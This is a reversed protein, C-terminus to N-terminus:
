EEGGDDIMEAPSELGMALRFGLWPSRSLLQDEAYSSVASRCIGADNQFSGGRIIRFVQEVGQSNAGHPNTLFGHKRRGWADHCWEWSNGHMDFLGSINPRLRKSMHTRRQSNERFWAYRDLWRLDSGFSYATRSKTRCAIEWEASTPYRVGRAKVGQFDKVNSQADLLYAEDRSLIGLAATLWNAFRAGDHWNVFTVPDDPTPDHPMQEEFHKWHSPMMLAFDNWTVERDMIAFDYSLRAKHRTEFNNRGKEDIPSGLDYTGARFVVFTMSVHTKFGTPLTASMERSPSVVVTFWECDQSYPRRKMDVEHVVSEQQWRRLLWGSSGHIAASPDRAYLDSVKSIWSFRSALPLEELDFEGLALLLGYIARDEKLRAARHLGVRRKEVMEM